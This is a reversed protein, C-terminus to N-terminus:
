VVWGRLQAIKSGIQKLEADTPVFMCFLWVMASSGDDFTVCDPKRFQSRMVLEDEVVTGLSVEQVDIFGNFENAKFWYGKISM